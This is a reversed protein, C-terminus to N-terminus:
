RLIGHRRFHQLLLTSLDTPDGTVTQVLPVEM